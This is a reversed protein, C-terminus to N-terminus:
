GTSSEDTDKGGKAIVAAIAQEKSHSLSLDLGTIDLGKCRELAAGHLAVGPRGQENVTVEVDHFRIGQSLGPHLKRVAEKAAFRAALSPYPNSKAMCYAREGETFVRQLIRPTRQVVLQFRRIDVIDIGIRM